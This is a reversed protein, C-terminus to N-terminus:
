PGKLRLTQLEKIRNWEKEDFEQKLATAAQEVEKQISLSYELRNYIEQWGLLVYEEEMKQVFPAKNLLKNDLLELIKVELGKSKANSLFAQKDLPGDYFEIFELVDKLTDDFNVYTLKDFVRSILYPHHVLTALLIKQLIVFNNNQAMPKSLSLRNPTKKTYKQNSFERKPKLENKLTVFQNDFYEKYANKVDNNEIQSILNKIVKLFSAQDEPTKFPHTDKLDNWLIDSLHRPNKLLNLLLEKDKQVLSDPDEGQPLFVFNLRQKENIHPLLKQGSRIAANYGAKDGDFCLLPPTHHRWLLKAHDETLATGLPAVATNIGNQHLSIVDLYGEVVIYGKNADVNKQALHHAYLVKSKSFLPTESSNLYKPQIDELARGGFAIVKGRRDFIPFMLRGRFRDVISHDDENQIILGVKILEEKSYTNKFADYLATKSPPTYGLRFLSQSVQNIGRKELYDRAKQGMSRSLMDTMWLAAKEMIEFSRDTQKKELNNVSEKKDYRPIVLGVQNALHEVAEMFPLGKKADLYNFVDGSQGCGFCHYHCKEDDVTFSPSKEKHFPCLGKFTKGKRILPTDSRIIDSLLIRDKIQEIFSSLDKM